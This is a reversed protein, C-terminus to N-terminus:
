KGLVVIATSVDTGEARFSGEPLDIWERLEQATEFAARQKPGAACIAVLLGGPRLLGYAHRIHRIDSGRFFPPNMVVRDFQGPDLALFDACHHLGDPWRRRLAGSMAGDIECTTVDRRGYMREVAELLRGTGASPELIANGDEIEAVAAVQDAIAAPTPFLNFGSFVEPRSESRALRSFRSREAALRTSSERAVEALARLRDVGAM